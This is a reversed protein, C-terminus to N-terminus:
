ANSPLETARKIVFVEDGNPCFLMLDDLRPDKADSRAKYMQKRFEERSDPPDIKVAIGMEKDLATIWYQLYDIRLAM